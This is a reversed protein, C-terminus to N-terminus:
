RPLTEYIRATLTDLARDILNRVYKENTELLDAAASITLPAELWKWEYRHTILNPTRERGIICAEFVVRRTHTLYPLAAYLELAILMTPNLEHEPNSMRRSVRLTEFSRYHRYLKKLEAAPTYRIDRGLRVSLRLYDYAKRKQWAVTGLHDPNGEEQVVQLAPRTARPARQM